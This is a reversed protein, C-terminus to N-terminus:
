GGSRRAGDPCPLGRLPYLVPLQFFVQKTPSLRAVFLEAIRSEIDAVIEEHGRYGSFNAGEAMFDRVRGM